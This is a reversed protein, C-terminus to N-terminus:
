QLKLAATIELEAPRSLKCKLKVGLHYQLQELVALVVVTSSSKDEKDELCADNGERVRGQSDKKAQHELSQIHSRLM